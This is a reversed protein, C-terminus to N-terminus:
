TNYTLFPRILTDINATAFLGDVSMWVWVHKCISNIRYSHTRTNRFTHSNVKLANSKEYRSFAWGKHLREQMNEITVFCNNNMIYCYIVIIERLSMNHPPIDYHARLMQLTWRLHKRKLFRSKNDTEALLSIIFDKKQCYSKRLLM